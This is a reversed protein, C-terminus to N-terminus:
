KLSFIQFCADNPFAWSRAHLTLPTPPPSWPASPHFTPDLTSIGWEWSQQMHTPMRATGRSGEQRQAGVGPILFTNYLDLVSFAGNLANGCHIPLVRKTTRFGLREAHRLLRPVTQVKNYGSELAMRWTSPRPCCLDLHHQFM